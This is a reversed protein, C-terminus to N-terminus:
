ETVGERQGAEPQAAERSEPTPNAHYDILRGITGYPDARDPTVAESVVCHREIADWADSTQAVGEAAPAAALMASYRGRFTNGYHQEWATEMALTPERPVLKWGAPWRAPQLRAAMSRLMEAAALCDTDNTDPAELRLALAELERESTM